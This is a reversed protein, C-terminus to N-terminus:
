IREMYTYVRKTNDVKLPYGRILNRELDKRFKNYGQMGLNICFKKAVDIREPERRTCSNKNPSLLSLFYYLSIHKNLLGSKHEPKRIYLGTGIDVFKTM